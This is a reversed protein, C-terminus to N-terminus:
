LLKLQKSKKPPPPFKKLSELFAMMREENQGLEDWKNRLYWWYNYKLFTRGFEWDKDDFFTM